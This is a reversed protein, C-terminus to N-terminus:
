KSLANDRDNEFDYDADKNAERRAKQEKQLTAQLEIASKHVETLTNIARELQEAYDTVLQHERIAATLLPSIDKPLYTNTKPLHSWIKEGNKIDELFEAYEINEKELEAQERQM